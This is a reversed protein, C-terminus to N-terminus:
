FIKGSDDRDAFSSNTIDSNIPFFKYKLRFMSKLKFMSKDAAAGETGGIKFWSNM